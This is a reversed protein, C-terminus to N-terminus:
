KKQAGLFCKLTKLWKLDLSPNVETQKFKTEIM